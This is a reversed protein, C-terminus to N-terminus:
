CVSMDITIVEGIDIKSSSFKIKSAISNILSFLYTYDRNLLKAPINAIYIGNHIKNADVWDSNNLIKLFGNSVDFIRDNTYDYIQLHTIDAPLLHIIRMGIKKTPFADRVEIFKTLNTTYCDGKGTPQSGTKIVINNM